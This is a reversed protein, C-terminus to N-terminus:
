GPSSARYISGFAGSNLEEMIVYERIRIGPRVTSDLEGAKIREYLALTEASPVTMLEEDLQRRCVDFQALAEAKRGSQALLLMLQRYASERWPDLQLQRRAMPEAEEFQSSDLFAQSLDNLALLADQRLEARLASVWNEFRNNDALYLDLLFDDCYLTVAEELRQRCEPCDRIAQHKHEKVQGILQRFTLADVKIDAAPNIQVTFRDALLLPVATEVTANSRVAAFPVAKRLRYMTQRLNSQAAEQRLEPWFMAMLADRRHVVNTEMTLLVLLARVKNGRVPIIQGTDTFLAFPGLVSIQLAQVQHDQM